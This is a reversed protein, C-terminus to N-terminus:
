SALSYEGEAQSVASLLREISALMLEGGGAFLDPTLMLVRPSPTRRALLGALAEPGALDPAAVLLDLPGQDLQRMMEPLSGAERVQFGAMELRGRVLGREMASAGAVLVQSAASSTQDFWGTCASEIVARLDVLDTIRGGIVASGLLCPRDYKQRVTVAEEVVDLIQDVMVGLVRCGDEFVVVPVNEGAPPSGGYGGDVLGALSVLPMIRGRYQVVLRGGAREIRETPIEELRSVISIPIALRESAGARLLLWRQAAGAAAETTVADSKVQGAVGSLVGARHGIGMVDLILAVQGDGMITAGAYVAVGKIQQSLPKVVIEQTDHIRDVVLGFQREEAQLVVINAAAAAAGDPASKLGLVETLAVIPLLTGRRRYVRTGQVAEIQQPAKRDLRILEVLSVQPIVFRGAGSAVVLGPIIALTLPIKLRVTAGAGLRSTVDVVGGIKEINSKVVDMGVGRGSVNTVAAATSFGPEFILNFAERDTMKQAREPTIIGKEIAKQKVRQPDIGGGDDGIEINVQGGAHYARLLVRGHAPKGAATRVEPREVGHDCSNRVLHTLPDKIAEIITKDLEIGAGEMELKIQKGLSNSLDRVVRPLKNWVLGIPQMRTKMVGEQLEATILNLRQATVQMAAKDQDPAHQLIQNRALVLEGVLNMLRDLLLVEVRITSDAVAPARETEPAGSAAADPETVPSVDQRETVPDSGSAASERLREILGEFLEPGETGDVEVSAIIKRTADMVALVLTILGATVGRQGARVQSLITEGEHTIAELKALGLFGCTGKVTHVTRFISALLEADRPRKELEVIENDLRALNENTEILFERIVEPDHGIDSNQSTVINNPQAM